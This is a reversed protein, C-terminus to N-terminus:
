SIITSTGRMFPSGGAVNFEEVSLSAEFWM